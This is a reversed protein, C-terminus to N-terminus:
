VLEMVGWYSETICNDCWSHRHLPPLGMFDLVSLHLGHVLSVCDRQLIGLMRFKGFESEDTAPNRCNQKQDWSSFRNCREISNEWQTTMKLGEDGWNKRVKKAIRQDGRSYSDERLRTNGRKCGFGKETGLNM